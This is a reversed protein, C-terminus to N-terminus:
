FVEQVDYIAGKQYHEVFFDFFDKYTKLEVVELNDLDYNRCYKFVIM